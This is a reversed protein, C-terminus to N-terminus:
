YALMRLVILHRSAGKFGENEGSTTGQALGSVLHEADQSLLQEVPLAGSSIVVASDGTGETRLGIEGARQEFGERTCKHALKGEEEPLSSYKAALEGIQWGSRLSGGPPTTKRESSYFTTNSTKDRESNALRSGRSPYNACWRESSRDRVWECHQM